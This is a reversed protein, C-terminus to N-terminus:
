AAIYDNINVDDIQGPSLFKRAYDLYVGSTLFLEFLDPDIHKDKKMFGMIRIAESLKKAKKYPRDSATLAEFIDAIAMMRGTFPIQEKVLRKPYGKGDLTEHHCGAIDPVDKMHKPYPLKTLMVITQVMHENIKFREEQSLTGREISLNYLEGRNYKHQPTDLRFDWPNDDPMRESETREIIHEPKDALLKEEVPPKQQESRKKRGLEEWSIGVRDDLTRLWTREAIDHLRKVKDEAMFEGGENCEAIFAFEEDLTQLENDLEQKLTQEDGGEGLQQWYNIIADRKLVEFRMRVEHIRDYITELKTSKDVVYEPTTVKGCDHLWCAIELAKWEKDDLSFERFRPDDSDCAAQALLLTIEPVRQCHGGTYPSKADIAGAILKIFADLLAEQMRLMQRSELTVAAFGSLAEVFAIRADDSTGFAAMEQLFVFCLLGILENNRNALPIVLVQLSQEDFIDLLPSFVSSTGAKIDMIRSKKSADAGLLQRCDDLSMASLSDTMLPEDADAYLASLKMLEDTEDFLYTFAGDAQSVTKTERTINNLLIDLDQEGALSNILNIFKSITTAMMNMAVDLEEVETIFSQQRTTQAFEFRAIRNSERALNKLPLSIKRAVYWIVPLSLLVVLITTILSQWRIAVAESLLEDVPSVMLAYLDVGGPRAIIKTSGVWREGQFDFDLNREVPELADSLFKLVESDLQKLNALKIQRDNSKIIVDEQNKYAYTEGEANILVVESRPTIRYGAIKDVLNELSVNLGVVVGPQEAKVMAALGM